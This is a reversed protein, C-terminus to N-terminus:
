DHIIKHARPWDTLFVVATAAATFVINFLMAHRDRRFPKTFTQTAFHALNFSDIKSHLWFPILPKIAAPQATIGIYALLGLAEVAYVKQVDSNLKLIRPLVLLSGVLAYDLIGHMRPSIPKDTM